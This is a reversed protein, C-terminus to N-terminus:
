GGRLILLTHYSIDDYSALGLPSIRRLSKRVGVSSTFETVASFVRYIIQRDEARLLPGQEEIENYTLDFFTDDSRLSEKVSTSVPDRVDATGDKLRVKRQFTLLEIPLSLAKHFIM